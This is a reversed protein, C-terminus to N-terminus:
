VKGSQRNKLTISRNIKAPHQPWGYGINIKAPRQPWGNGIFM